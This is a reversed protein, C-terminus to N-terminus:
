RGTVVLFGIVFLFSILSCVICITASTLWAAGPNEDASPISALRQRLARDLEQRLRPDETLIWITIHRFMEFPQIQILEDGYLWLTGSRKATLGISEIAESIGTEARLRDINYVALSKSRSLIGIGAFAAVLLLYGGATIAWIMRESALAENVQKWNGRFLLLANSQLTAVLLAGGFVLVGSLGLVLSAFDWGGDVVTPRDRRNMASVWALYLSLPALCAIGATCLLIVLVVRVDPVSGPRVRGTPLHTIPPNYGSM